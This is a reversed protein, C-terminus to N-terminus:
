VCELEIYRIFCDGVDQAFNVYIGKSFYIPPKFRKFNSGTGSLTVRYKSIYSNSFGDYLRVDLVKRRILELEYLVMTRLVPNENYFRLRIKTTLFPSPLYKDNWALDSYIGLYFNVWVSGNWYDLEIYRQATLSYIAYFRVGALFVSSSLIFEVWESWTDALVDDGAWTTLNGDFVNGENYWSVAPDNFSDPTMNEHATVYSGACEMLLCARDTVLGSATLRATKAKKSDALSWLNHLSSRGTQLLNLM